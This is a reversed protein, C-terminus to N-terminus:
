SRAWRTSCWTLPLLLAITTAPGLGPLVGVLTGVTVGLLGLLLNQLTLAHAFGDLLHGLVSM